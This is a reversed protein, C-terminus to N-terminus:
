FEERNAALFYVDLVPDSSTYSSVHCEIYSLFIGVAIINWWCKQSVRRMDGKASDTSINM